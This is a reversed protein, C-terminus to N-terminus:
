RILYRKPQCIADEPFHPSGREFGSPEYIASGFFIPVAM